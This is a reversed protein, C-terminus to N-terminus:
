GDDRVTAGAAGAMLQDLLVTAFSGSPLTFRLVANTEAGDEEVELSAEAVPVTLPRRQGRARVHDARFAEPEAGEERLVEREIEGPHGGALRLDYGVLPATPHAAPLAGAPEGLDGDRVPFLAGCADLSAVDGRLLRDHSGEEMRRRLIRNFVWSQWAAVWIRRPRRGLAEFAQRPSAGRLLAGLARKEARHRLPFLDRAAALDGADYADRARRVRPNHEYPSARGLLQGLFGPWDENVVARGVLHGDRRVGFRQAGYANPMGQRTIRELAERAAPVRAADVGRVRVTFRNGRHHGIKLGSGHRVASLVRFRPHRLGLVREPPVRAVSLCQRTVARADKLGAYGVSHESVKVGKSVRLLVDFTSMGRKEVQFVVHEGAGSPQFLPIEEVLFDEPVRRIEGGLGIAEGPPLPVFDPDSGAGGHPPSV